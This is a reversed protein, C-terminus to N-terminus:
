IKWHRFITCVMKMNQADFMKNQLRLAGQVDKLEMSQNDVKNTIESIEDRMTFSIRELNERNTVMAALKHNLDQLRQPLFYLTNNLCLRLLFNRLLKRRLPLSIFIKRICRHCFNPCKKPCFTAGKTV